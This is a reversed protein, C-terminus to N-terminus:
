DSQHLVSGDRHTVKVTNNVETTVRQHCDRCEDPRRTIEPGGLVAVGSKGVAAVCNPLLVLVLKSM